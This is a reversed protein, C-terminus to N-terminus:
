VQLVPLTKDVLLDQYAHTEGQIAVFLSFVLALVAFVVVLIKQGGMLNTQMLEFNM